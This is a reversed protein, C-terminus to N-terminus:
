KKLNLLDIKKMMNWIEIYTDLTKVIKKDTIQKSIAMLNFNSIEGYSRPTKFFNKYLNLFINLKNHSINIKQYAIDGLSYNKRKHPPLSLYIWNPLIQGAPLIIFDLSPKIALSYSKNLLNQGKAKEYVAIKKYAILFDKKQQNQWPTFLAPHVDISYLGLSELFLFNTFMKKVEKPHVTMTPSVKIKYEIILKINNIIKQFLELTIGKRHKYNTIFDGDLGIEITINNKKLFQIKEIDLLTCNSELMIQYNIFKKQIYKCLDEFNQWEYCPEGGSFVVNLYKDQPLNDLLHKIAKLSLSQNNTRYKFFCYDCNLNCKDTLFIWLSSLPLDKIIHM